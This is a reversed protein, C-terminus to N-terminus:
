CRVCLGDCGSAFHAFPAGEPEFERTKLQSSLIKAEAVHKDVRDAFHHLTESSSRFTFTSYAMSNAIWYSKTFMGIQLTAQKLRPMKRLSCAIAPSAHVKLLQLVELNCCALSPCIFSQSVACRMTLERCQLTWDNLCPAYFNDMGLTLMDAKCDQLALRCTEVSQTFWQQDWGEGVQRWKLLNGVTISTLHALKPLHTWDTASLRCVKLEKLHQLPHLQALDAAFINLHLHRLFTCKQFLLATGSMVEERRFRLRAMGPARGADYWALNPCNALAALIQLVFRLVQLHKFIVRPQKSRNRVIDKVTNSPQRFPHKAEELFTVRRLSGSHQKIVQVIFATPLPKSELFTLDHLTSPMSLLRELVAAPMRATFQLQRKRMLCLNSYRLFDKCICDTFTLEQLTLFVLVSIHLDSSLAHKTTRLANGHIRMDQRLRNCLLAQLIVHM